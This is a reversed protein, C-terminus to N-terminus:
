WGACRVVLAQRLLSVDGRRLGGCCVSLLWCLGCYGRARSRAYSDSHVFSFRSTPTNFLLEDGCFRPADARSIRQCPPLSLVVRRNITARIISPASATRSASSPRVPRPSAYRYSWNAGSIRALLPACTMSIYPTLIEPSNNATAPPLLSRQGLDDVRPRPDCRNKSCTSIGCRGMWAGAHPAVNPLPLRGTDTATEIWAGAHPAVSEGYVKTQFHCFCSNKRVYWLM